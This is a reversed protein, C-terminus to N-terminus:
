LSHQLNGLKRYNKRNKKEQCATTLIGSIGALCIILRKKM